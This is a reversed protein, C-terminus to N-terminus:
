DRAVITTLAAIVATVLLWGALVSVSYWWQAAGTASWSDEQGLKVVPLVADLAYLLSQFDPLEDAAKTARMHDPNAWAFIGWGALVFALLWLAAQWTRYGYGVTWQLFVNWAKGARGLQGRRRREREYAVRRADADRGEQRYVGMLQTYPQPAYGEGGERSDIGEEALRIWRLRRRVDVPTRPWMRALGSRRAGRGALRRGSGRTQEDESAETGGYLCGRLRLTAPWTQESDFLRGLRSDTLDVLRIQRARDSPKLRLHLGADVRAGELNLALRPDVNVAGNFSLLGAIQAGFLRVEGNASFGQRCFMHGDVRLRDAILGRSLTAGDFWVVRAVHAGFLHVEGGASFGDGCHIDGDVQLRDAVLRDGLTAGDFSLTGAVHAGLLWVEGGASFGQRCFMNGDVRLLEADLRERLKAGDLSLEGAVHAGFLRVEGGASFGQRCFMDGDVRLGAAALGKGLPAGDFVLQGAIQAGPLRVEGGVSFGQRCFMPGDVKLRDAALGGKLTAGELSLQGAIQAEFLRVEGGVSSGQRCSMGGNVRLGDALLGEDLTARTFSLRGAIEARFLRVDGAASFGDRCFMDGDVRLMTADLGEGLTAREFDLQGAIRAGVLRVERNASFGHRCFMGLGVRLGDAFLGRGLTAGDFVLVGGIHAGSLYVEGAASFGDRCFMDGDVRLGDAMLAVGELADSLDVEAPRLSGEALDLPYRGGSLTTGSLRLGGGVHVGRLNVIELRSDSLDLNGRTECGAADIGPLVCATLEIEPAKAAILNVPHDFYCKHAILPARLEAAEMNLRGTIRLGVLVAARPKVASGPRALLDHLVAAPLQRDEGWSHAETAPEGAGRRVPRGEEVETKLEEAPSDRGDAATDSVAANNHREPDAPKKM